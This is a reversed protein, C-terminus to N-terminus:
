IGKSFNWKALLKTGPDLVIKTPETESSISVKIKRKDLQIIEIRPTGTNSSISIELPMDFVYKEPQVQNLEIHILKDLPNYSWTGELKINGGQFLWQNFFKKLDKGSARELAMRLDATSANGNYFRLYYDRIGKQFADEGILNCLMHTIWAGKQYTLGSTVKRMDQLNDHVVRYDEYVESIRFVTNRAKRLGEVFADHGYAHKIFRLTFYTTLGESLWVDDWSYETVCNGFWQHAIEHIVVNRWRENRDGVVSKDSYFIASAAEMGGGVSNSQINALKEYAFPGVYESYYELVQKTPTAFDYFGADRDQKYVWTQISKGKFTKGYQVAFEAVGLVYLWCPIPVSQKWHTTRMGEESNSEEVLLGNSVVQYKVPATVIFECSAKDYPHDVTPLWNRAKNPWNNSFFTRDGYKNPGIILGERPVGEYEITIVREESQKSTPISIILVDSEHTYNLTENYSTIRNVLMGVYPLTDSKNILDLRLREIGAKKFKVLIQANAKIMDTHDSLTIEFTYHIIDINPNKPYPDALTIRPIAISVMLILTVFLNKKWYNMRQYKVGNSVFNGKDVQHVGCIFKIM